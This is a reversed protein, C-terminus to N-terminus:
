YCVIHKLVVCYVSVLLRDSIDHVLILSLKLTQVTLRGSLSHREM